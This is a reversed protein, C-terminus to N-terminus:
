RTPRAAFPPLSPHDLGIVVTVDVYPRPDIEESVRSADLGLVRAVRLAAERNGVRDIVRTHAEDFRRWNGSAVVDLHHRRLYDTVTGAVGPVGCGNRVEVQIIEGPVPAPAAPLLPPGEPFAPALLRWALGALLALLVLGGVAVAANLLFRRGARGASMAPRAYVRAARGGLPVGRSFL